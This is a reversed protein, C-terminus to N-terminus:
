PTLVGAKYEKLRPNIGLFILLSLVIGLALDAWTMGKTASGADAAM